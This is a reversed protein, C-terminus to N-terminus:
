STVKDRPGKNDEDDFSYQHRSLPMARATRSKTRAVNAISVAFLLMIILSTRELDDLVDLLDARTDVGGAFAAGM